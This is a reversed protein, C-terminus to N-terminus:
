MHDKVESDTEPRKVWMPYLYKRCAKVFLVLFNRHSEESVGTAEAIDDFTWGRGLYRLSGLIFLDLPIGPQKCANVREYTPFWQNERALTVLGKFEKYPMRFRRRFQQFHRKHKFWGSGDVYRRYWESEICHMPDYGTYNRAVYPRKEEFVVAKALEEEEEEDEDDDNRDRKRKYAVWKDFVLIGEEDFISSFREM